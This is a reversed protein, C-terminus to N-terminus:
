PLFNRQIRFFASLVDQDQITYLGAPRAGNAALSATGAFATYAWRM